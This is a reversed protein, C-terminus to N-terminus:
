EVVPDIGEAVIELGQLSPNLTANHAISAAGARPAPTDSPRSSDPETATSRNPHRFPNLRSFRSSLSSSM